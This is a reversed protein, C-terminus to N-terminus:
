KTARVKLKMGISLKEISLLEKNLYFIEKWKNENDYLKVAIKRLTDGSVVEYTTVNNIKGVAHLIELQSKELDANGSYVSSKTGKTIAGLKTLVKNELVLVEDGEADKTWDDKLSDLSAEQAYLSTALLIGFLLSFFHM